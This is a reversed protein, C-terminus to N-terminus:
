NASRARHRYLCVKPGKSAATFFFTVGHDPLPTAIVDFPSGQMAFPLGKMSLEQWADTTANLSFFRDDKHLILFDGSVPDSTVVTTNIGIEVPAPRLKTVQGAADLRYLDRSGNGGGFLVIRQPASVQAVNHYPGMPTKEDLLTWTQQAEDFVHVAGSYVRLLGRPPFHVLATGHGVAADKIEPLTSWADRKVDYRHVLRTGSQHLYFLGRAQDITNNYYAHGIPGKGTQPDGTWWSPTARLTWRNASESYGLFKLASYHGQGVFLVQRSVPDWAAAGAYQLAHHHQTQLLEATYGETKLEAWSGPTLGAAVKALETKKVPETQAPAPIALAVVIALPQWLMPARIM